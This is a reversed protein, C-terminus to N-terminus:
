GPWHFFAKKVVTVAQGSLRRQNVCAINMPVTISICISRQKSIRPYRLLEVHEFPKPISWCHECYDVYGIKAYEKVRGHVKRQDPHEDNLIVPVCDRDRTKYLLGLLMNKDATEDAERDAEGETEREECRLLHGLEGVAFEVPRSVVLERGWCDVAVGPEIRVCADHDLSVELGWIIGYGHLGWQHWRHHSIQYSQEDQFDKATLYKGTFYHNREDMWRSFLDHRHEDHHHHQNSM